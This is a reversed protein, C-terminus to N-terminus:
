IANGQALRDLATNQTTTTNSANENRRNTEERNRSVRIRSRNCFCRWWSSLKTLKAERSNAKRMTLVWCNRIQCKYYLVVQFYSVAPSGLGVLSTVKSHYPSKQGEWLRCELIHEYYNNNNRAKNSVWKMPWRNYHMYNLVREKNRLQRM